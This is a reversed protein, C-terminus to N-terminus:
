QHTRRCTMKLGSWRNSKVGVAQIKMSCGPNTYMGEKRELNFNEESQAKIGSFAWIGM